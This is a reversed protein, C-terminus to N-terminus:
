FGMYFLEAATPETKPKKEGAPILERGDKYYKVENDKLRIRGPEGRFPEGTDKFRFHGPRFWGAGNNLQM